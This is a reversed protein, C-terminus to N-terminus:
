KFSSISNTSCLLVGYRKWRITFGNNDTIDFIAGVPFNGKLIYLNNDMKRGTNM